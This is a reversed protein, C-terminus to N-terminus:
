GDGGREGPDCGALNTPHSPVWSEISPIRSPHSGAPIPSGDWGGGFGLVGGISRDWWSVRDTWLRKGVVHVSFWSGYGLFRLHVWLDFGRRESPFPPLLVPRVGGPLLDLDEEVEKRSRRRFSSPPGRWVGVFSVWPSTSSSGPPLRDTRDARVSALCGSPISEFASFHICLCFLLILFPLGPGRSGWVRSLAEDTRSRQGRVEQQVLEGRELHQRDLSQGRQSGEPHRGEFSRVHVSRGGQVAPAAGETGQEGERATGPAGIASNTRRVGGKRSLGGGAQIGIRGEQSGLIGSESGVTHLANAAQERGRQPPELLLQVDRDQGFQRPRRGCPIPPRGQREPPHNRQGRQAERHRETPLFGGDRSLHVAYAAAERGPVPRAEEVHSGARAGLRTSTENTRARTSRVDTERRSTERTERGPSAAATCAASVVVECGHKRPSPSPHRPFRGGKRDSTGKRRDFAGPRGGLDNRVAGEIGKPHVSPPDIPKTPIRPKTGDSPVFPPSVICMEHDM